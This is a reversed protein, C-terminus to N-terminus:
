VAQDVALAGFSLLDASEASTALKPRWQRARLRDGRVVSVYISAADRSASQHGPADHSGSWM